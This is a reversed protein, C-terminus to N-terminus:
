THQRPRSADMSQEGSGAPRYVQTCRSTAGTSVCVEAANRLPTNQRRTGIEAVGRAIGIDIYTQVVSSLLTLSGCRSFISLSVHKRPNTNEYKGGLTVYM